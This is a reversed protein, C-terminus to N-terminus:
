SGHVGLNISLCLHEIHHNHMNQYHVIIFMGISTILTKWINLMAVVYDKMARVMEDM